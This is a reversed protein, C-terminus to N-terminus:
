QIILIDGEPTWDQKIEPPELSSKLWGTSERINVCVVPLDPGELLKKALEHATM